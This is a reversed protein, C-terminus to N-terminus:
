ELFKVQRPTFYKAWIALDRPRVGVAPVGLTLAQVQVPILCCRVNSSSFMTEFDQGPVTPLAAGLALRNKVFATMKRGSCDDLTEEQQAGKPGRLEESRGM